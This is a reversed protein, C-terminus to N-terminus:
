RAAASLRHAGTYVNMSPGRLFGVLTDLFQLTASVSEHRWLALTHDFGTAGYMEAALAEAIPVLQTRQKRLL